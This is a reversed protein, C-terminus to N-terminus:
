GTRLLQLGSVVLAVEVLVPFIGEPLRDVLRKGLYSGAIMVLGILAGTAVATPTLLAYGGYVGLKVAHLVLAACAETGIYVGKVLGYSM